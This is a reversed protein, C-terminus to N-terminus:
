NGNKRAMRVTIYQVFPNAFHRNIRRILEHRRLSIEQMAPASVAEVVLAGKDIAVVQVLSALGALEMQWARELLALNHSLGLDKFVSGADKETPSLM